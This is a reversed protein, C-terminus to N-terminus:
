WQVPASSPKQVFAFLQASPATGPRYSVGAPRTPASPSVATNPSASAPFATVAM